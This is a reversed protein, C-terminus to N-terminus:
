LIRHEISLGAAVVLGPKTPATVEDDVLAPYVNGEIYVNYRRRVPISLGVGFHVRPGDVGDQEIGMPLYFVRGNVVLPALVTRVMWRIARDRDGTFGGGVAFFHAISAQVFLRYGGTTRGGISGGLLQAGAELIFLSARRPAHVSDHAYLRQYADSTETAVTDAAAAPSLAFVSLCLCLPISLRPTHCFSM